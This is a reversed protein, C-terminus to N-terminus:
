VHLIGAFYISSRCYSWIQAGIVNSRSVSEGFCQYPSGFSISKIWAKRIWFALQSCGFFLDLLFSCKCLNWSYCESLPKDEIVLSRKSICPLIPRCSSETLRIKHGGSRVFDSECVEVTLIRLPRRDFLSIWLAVPIWWQACLNNGHLILVLLGANTVFLLLLEDLSIAYCECNSSYWDRSQDLDHAAM